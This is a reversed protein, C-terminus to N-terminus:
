EGNVIPLRTTSAGTLSPRSAACMDVLRSVDEARVLGRL